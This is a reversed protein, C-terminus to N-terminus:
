CFACSCLLPLEFARHILEPCWLGLSFLGYSVYIQGGSCPLVTESIYLLVLKEYVEVNLVKLLIREMNPTGFEVLSVEM